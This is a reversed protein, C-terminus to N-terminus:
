KATVAQMAKAYEPLKSYRLSFEKLEQKATDTNENMLYKLKGKIYAYATESVENKMEEDPVIERAEAFDGTIFLYNFLSEATAVKRALLRFQRPSLSLVPIKEIGSDLKVSVVGDNVSIIKGLSNKVELQVGELKADGNSIDEWFKGADSVVGQMKMAWEVFSKADKKLYEPVNGEEKLAASFANVAEAFNRKVGQYAFRYRLLEKQSEVERAYEIAHQKQRETKEKELRALETKRDKERKAEEM